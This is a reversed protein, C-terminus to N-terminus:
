PHQEQGQDKTTRLFSIATRPGPTTIAKFGSDKNVDRCKIKVKVKQRATRDDVLFASAASAKVWATMKGNVNLGM